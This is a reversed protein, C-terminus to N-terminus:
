TEKKHGRSLLKIIATDVDIQGALIDAMTTCIPMDVGLEAAMNKLAPASAVGETVSNRSAMIDELSQGNGLALGCSM